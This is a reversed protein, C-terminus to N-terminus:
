CDPYFVNKGTKEPRSVSNILKLVRMSFDVYIIPSGYEELALKWISTIKKDQNKLLMSIPPLIIAGM